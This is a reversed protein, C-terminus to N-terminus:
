RISIRAMNVPSMRTRCSNFSISPLLNIQFILRDSTHTIQNPAAIVRITANSNELGIAVQTSFQDNILIRSASLLSPTRIPTIANRSSTGLCPRHRQYSIHLYELVLESVNM